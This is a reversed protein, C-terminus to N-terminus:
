SAEHTATPPVGTAAPSRACAALAEATGLSLGLLMASRIFSRRSRKNQQLQQLLEVIRARNVSGRAEKQGM